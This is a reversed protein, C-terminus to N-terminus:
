TVVAAQEIAAVTLAELLLPDESLAVIALSARGAAAPPPPSLEGARSRATGPAHDAASPAASATRPKM